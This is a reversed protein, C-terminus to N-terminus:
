YDDLLEAATVDRRFSNKKGCYPCHNQVSGPKLKFKYKCSECTYDEYVVM